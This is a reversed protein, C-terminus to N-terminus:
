RLAALLVGGIAPGVEIVRSFALDVVVTRKGVKCLASGPALRLNMESGENRSERMWITATGSLGARLLLRAFSHTLIWSSRILHERWPQSIQRRRTYRFGSQEFRTRVADPLWSTAGIVYLAAWRAIDDIEFRSKM